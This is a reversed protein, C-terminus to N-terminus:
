GGFQVVHLSVEVAPGISQVNYLATPWKTIVELLQMQCKHPFLNCTYELSPTMTNFIADLQQTYMRITLYNSQLVLLHSLILGNSNSSFITSKFVLIAISHTAVLCVLLLKPPFLFACLSHYRPHMTPPTYPLLPCQITYVLEYALIYM